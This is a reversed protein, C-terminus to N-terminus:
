RPWRIGHMWCVIFWCRMASCSGDRSSFWPPKERQEHKFGRISKEQRSPLITVSRALLPNCYGGTTAWTLLRMHIRRGPFFSQLVEPWRHPWATSPLLKKVWWVFRSFHKPASAIIHGTNMDIPNWMWWLREDRPVYHQQFRRVFTREYGTCPMDKWTLLVVERCKIVNPTNCLKLFGCGM